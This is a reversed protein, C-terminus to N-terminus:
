KDEELEYFRSELYENELSIIKNFLKIKELTNLYEKGIEEQVKKDPLIIVVKKIQNISLIPSNQGILMTKIQNLYVKSNLFALLYEKSMDEPLNNIIACFSPVLLGEDDKTILCADYPTSLKIVIDGEKTVKKSDVNSSLNLLGLDNHNVSGNQIAKPTLVKIEGIKNSELKADIRSTIQGGIININTIDNILVKKLM